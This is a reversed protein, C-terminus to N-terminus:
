AGKAVIQETWYFQTKNQRILISLTRAFDIAATVADGYDDAPRERADRRLGEVSRIKKGSRTGRM